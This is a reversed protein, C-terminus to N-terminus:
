TFSCLRRYSRPRLLQLCDYGGASAGEAGKAKEDGTWLEGQHAFCATRSTLPLRFVQESCPSKLQGVTSISGGPQEFDGPRSSTRRSMARLLQAPLSRNLRLVKRPALTRVASRACSEPPPSSWTM